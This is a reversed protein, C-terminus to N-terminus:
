EYPTLLSPSTKSTTQAAGYIVQKTAVKNVQHGDVIVKRKGSL